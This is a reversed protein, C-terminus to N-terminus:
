FMYIVSIFIDDSRPKQRHSHIGSEEAALCQSALWLARKISHWKFPFSLKQLVVKEEEM